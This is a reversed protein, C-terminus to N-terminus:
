LEYGYAVEIYNEEGIPISRKTIKKGKKAEYFNRGITNEELCWTLMRRYGQKRLNEKAAELLNTGFAQNQKEKQVYIAYVESDYPPLEDRIAGYKIYGVIKGEEECVLYEVNEKMEEEYKQAKEEISLHDLYKKNVINQYTNKWEEVSINAIAKSDEYNARRIMHRMGEKTKRNNM